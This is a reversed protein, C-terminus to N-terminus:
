ISHTSFKAFSKAENLLIPLVQITFTSTFVFCLRVAARRTIKKTITHSQLLQYLSPSTGIKPDM